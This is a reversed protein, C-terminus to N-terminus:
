EEGIGIHTANTSFIVTNSCTALVDEKYSVIPVLTNTGNGNPSTSNNMALCTYVSVGLLRM